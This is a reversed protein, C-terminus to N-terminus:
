HYRFFGGLMDIYRQDDRRCYPKKKFRRHSINVHGPHGNEADYQQQESQRLFFM